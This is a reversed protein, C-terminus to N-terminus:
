ASSPMRSQRKDRPSPSTYLLCHSRIECTRHFETTPDENVALRDIPDDSLLSGPLRLSSGFVRQHASFGSRNQYRNRADLSATLALDFEEETVIGAETITDRLDEKLSDGAKETRGQQWPSQSDIFHQVCAHKGLYKAFDKTFEPGQDTVVLM